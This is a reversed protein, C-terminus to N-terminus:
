VFPLVLHSDYEGGAHIWHQGNNRVHESTGFNSFGQYRGSVSLQLSEGEEFEIGMCWIGIELRVVTGPEVKEEKEHTYFPWNEHMSRSPDIARNSARLIGTPGQYLIVETRKDEPIDPIKSVPLNTWPINLNLLLEGSASLKNLVLFVDMDDFDDNRMWLVAKPM